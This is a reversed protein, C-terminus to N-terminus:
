SIEHSGVNAGRGGGGARPRRYQRADRAPAEDVTAASDGGPQKKEDRDGTDTARGSGRETIVEGAAVRLGLLRLGQQRPLKGGIGAVACLYHEL